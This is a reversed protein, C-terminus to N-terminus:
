TVGYSKRQGRVTVSTKTDGPEKKSARMAKRIEKLTVTVMKSVHDM